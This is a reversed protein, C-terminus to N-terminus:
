ANLIGMPAYTVTPFVSKINTEAHRKVLVEALVQRCDQDFSDGGQVITM